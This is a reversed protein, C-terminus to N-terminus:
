RITRAVADFAKITWLLREADQPTPWSLKAAVVNAPRNVYIM